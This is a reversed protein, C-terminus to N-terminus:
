FWEAVYLGTELTSKITNLTIQGFHWLTGLTREGNWLILLDQRAFFGPSHSRPVLSFRCCTHSLLIGLATSLMANLIRYLCTIVDSPARRSKRLPLRLM